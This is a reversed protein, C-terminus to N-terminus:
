GSYGPLRYFEYERAAFVITRTDCFQREDESLIASAKQGEPSAFAAAFDAESRFWAEVVGDFPNPTWGRGTSFGAITPSDIIHSQVYRQVRLASKFSVTLPGHVTLWRTHFQAPTLDSRRSALAIFKLMPSERVYAPVRGFQTDIMSGNSGEDGGGAGASVMAAIQAFAGDPGWLTTGFFQRGLIASASVSM